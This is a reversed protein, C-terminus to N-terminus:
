RCSRPRAERTDASRFERTFLGAAAIRRPLHIFKPRGVHFLRDPSTPGRPPEVKRDKGMTWLPEGCRM